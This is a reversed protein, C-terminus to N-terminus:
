RGNPTAAQTPTETEPSVLARLEAPSLHLVPPEQGAAVATGATRAGASLSVQDGGTSPAAHRVPRGAAPAHWPRASSRSVASLPGIPTISM